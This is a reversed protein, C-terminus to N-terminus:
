LLPSYRSCDSWFRVSADIACHYRHYGPTLLDPACCQIIRFAM